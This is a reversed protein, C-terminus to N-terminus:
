CVLVMGPVVVHGSVIVHSVHAVRVGPVLHHHM